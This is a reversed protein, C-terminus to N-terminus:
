VKASASAITIFYGGPINTLVVTKTHVKNNVATDLKAHTADTYRKYSLTQSVHARVSSGAWTPLNSTLEYNYGAPVPAGQDNVATAAGVTADNDVWNPSQGNIPFDNAIM